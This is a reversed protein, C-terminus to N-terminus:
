ERVDVWWHDHVQLTRRLRNHAEDGPRIEVRGDADTDLAAFDIGDFLTDTETSPDTTLLRLVLTVSTTPAVALDFPAGVLQTGDEIDLRAEFTWSDAGRSATGALVATHGLLADGAPLGDAADAARFYLNAGHYEGELLVADGLSRDAGAFPDLVFNGPLEGTVEGGAYHGPHAAAVAPLLLRRLPEPLRAHVEGGVTFELDRVAVRAATLEVTYGEATTCAALGAGDAVVPLVVAAPESGADCVALALPLATWLLTWRIIRGM